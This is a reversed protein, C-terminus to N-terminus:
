VNGNQTFNQIDQETLGTIESIDKINMKKKLMNKAIQITRERIGINKGEEIGISKGEEIGKDKATEMVLKDLKDKQWEHLVFKDKSM